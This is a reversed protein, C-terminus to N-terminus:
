YTGQTLSRGPPTYSLFDIQMNVFMVIPETKELGLSHAYPLSFVM